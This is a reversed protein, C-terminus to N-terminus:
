DFNIQIDKFDDVTYEKLCEKCSIERLECDKNRCDLSESTLNAEWLLSETLWFTTSGCPCQKM